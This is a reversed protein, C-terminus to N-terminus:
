CVLCSVTGIMAGVLAVTAIKSRVSTDNKVNDSVIKLMSNSVVYLIVGAVFASIPQAVAEPIPVLAGVPILLAMLASIAFRTKDKKGDLLSFTVMGEPVKHLVLGVLMLPNVAMATLVVGECFNHFGMGLVASYNGVFKGLNSIAFMAAVGLVVLVYAYKFNESADPIIDGIAIAFAFGLGLCSLFMRKKSEKTVLFIVAGLLEACVFLVTALLNM